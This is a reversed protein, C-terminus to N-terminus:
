KHKEFYGMENLIAELYNKKEAAPITSPMNKFIVDSIADSKIKPNEKILKEVSEWHHEMNAIIRQLINTIIERGKQFGGHGCILIEIPLDTIKRLSALTDKFNSQPNNLIPMKERWLSNMSILDGIILVKQDPIWFGVEDNSHGPLFIIQIDPNLEVIEEDKEFVDVRSVPLWKGFIRELWFTLLGFIARSLLNSYLAIRLLLRRWRYPVGVIKKGALAGEQFNILFKKMVSSDELIDQAEFHCRVKNKFQKFLTGSSGAHDPHSHTYWFENIEAMETGDQRM